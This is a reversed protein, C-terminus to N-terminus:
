PANTPDKPKIVGSAVALRRYEARKASLEEPECEEMDERLLEMGRLLRSRHDDGAM